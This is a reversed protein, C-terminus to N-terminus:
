QDPFIYSMEKYGGPGFRGTSINEWISLFSGAAGKSQTQAAEVGHLEVLLEEVHVVPVHGDPEEVGHKGHRPLLYIWM